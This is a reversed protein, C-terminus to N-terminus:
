EQRCPMSSVAVASYSSQGEVTSLGDARLSLSSSAMLRVYYGLEDLPRIAKDSGGESFSRRVLREACHRSM